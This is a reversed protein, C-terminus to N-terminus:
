YKAAYPVAADWLKQWDKLYKEAIEPKNRVVMVNEANRNEAVDTYNFSGLQITKGDIVMYKDHMIPHTNDIRVPIGSNALFTASSYSQKAQSRDLVVKIDIGRKHAALVAQNIDKSTFYYAAIRINKQAESIALAVLETAGGKPSFAVEIEPSEAAQVPIAFSFFVLCFALAIHRM